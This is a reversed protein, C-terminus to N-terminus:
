IYIKHICLDRLTVRDTTLIRMSWGPFGVKVTLRFDIGCDHFYSALCALTHLGAQKAKSMNSRFM